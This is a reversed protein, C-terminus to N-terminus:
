FGWDNSKRKKKKSPSGFFSYPDIGYDKDQKKKQRNSQPSGFFKSYDWSDSVDESSSRSKTKAKIRTSKTKKSKTQLSTSKRKATRPEVAISDIIKMAGTLGKSIKDVKSEQKNKRRPSSKTSYEKDSRVVKKMNRGLIITEANCQQKYKQAYENASDELSPEIILLVACIHPFTESYEDLQSILNRLDIRNRPVKLEFAFRQDIVVDVKSGRGIRFQRQIDLEPYRAKLFIAFQGEFEREDRIPEREFYETIQNIITEFHATESDIRPVGGDFEYDKKRFKDFLGM